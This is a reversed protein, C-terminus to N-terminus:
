GMLGMQEIGCIWGPGMGRHLRGTRWCIWMGWTGQSSLGCVPVDVLVQLVPPLPLLVASGWPPDRHNNNIKDFWKLPNWSKEPHSAPGLLQSQWDLM